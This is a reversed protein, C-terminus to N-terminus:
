SRGPAATGTGATADGDGALRPRALPLWVSFVAGRPANVGVGIGGGHAEVIRKVIALGLGAGGHERTTSQDVQYFADFVRGRQEEPIGVGTDAVRVVVQQAVPALLATGIGEDDRRGAEVATTITVTGGEPTFKVANDVLNIFVQRLRDADGSVSPLDPSAELRIAVGRKRAAPELTTIAEEVVHQVDLDKRRVLLTGSELKSLDLLDMILRLLQEGRVRITEVFEKQADTVPGGMGEGLMEAYGLIATLPTRLEHSMTALFASKLRDTAQLREYADELRAKSALAEHYSQEITAAHMEATVRAEYGSRILREVARHAHKMIEGARLPALHPLGDIEADIPTTASFRLLKESTSMESEIAVYPGILLHAVVEGEHRVPAARYEVNRPGVLRTVDPQRGLEETAQDVLPAQEPRTGGRVVAREAPDYVACGVGGLHELSGLLDKMGARSVVHELRPRELGLARQLAQPATAGSV